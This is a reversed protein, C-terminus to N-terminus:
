RSFPAPMLTDARTAIRGEWIEVIHKAAADLDFDDHVVLADAVGSAEIREGHEICDRLSWTHGLGVERSELRQAIIDPPASVQVVTLNAGPIARLILMADEATELLGPLVARQAGRDIANHWIFALNSRMVELGRPDDQARPFTYTLADLDQYLHPVDLAQLERSVAAGVATKGAGITGTLALVPVSLAM